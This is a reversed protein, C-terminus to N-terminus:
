FNLFEVPCEFIGDSLKKNEFFYDQYNDIVNKIEPNSKYEYFDFISRNQNGESVLFRDAGHELLVKMSEIDKKLCSKMLPTLGLYNKENVDAGYQIFLKVFDVRRHNKEDRREFLSYIPMKISQINAGRELLFTAGNIYDNCMALKLAMNFSSDSQRCKFNVDAGRRLLLDAMVLNEKIIAKMLPTYYHNTSFGVNESCDEINVDAGADLLMEVKDINDTDVAFVLEYHLRKKDM